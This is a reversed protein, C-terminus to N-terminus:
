HANRKKGAKCGCWESSTLGRGVRQTLQWLNSALRTERGRGAASCAVGDAAAAAAVATESFPCKMEPFANGIYFFRSRSPGAQSSSAQTPLFLFQRTCPLLFFPLPPIHSSTLQHRSYTLSFLGSYTFLCDIGLSVCLNYFLSPFFFIAAHSYKNSWSLSLFPSRFASFM